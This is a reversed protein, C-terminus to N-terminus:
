RTPARPRLVPNPDKQYSSCVFYSNPSDICSKPFNSVGIQGCEAIARTFAGNGSTLCQATPNDGCSDVYNFLLTACRAGKGGAYNANVLDDECQKRQAACPQLGSPDGFQIPDNAAYSYPNTKQSFPSAMEGIMGPLLWITKITRCMGVTLPTFPALIPDESVFRQSSSSYYRARYYYFGTGDNERGTYQLANASAGTVTTKGFPEYGYTAVSGGTADSLVLSSGLADTHYYQNGTGAQRIFTEDINLSRLYNAGVAGGGIEATIDTGDYAFQSVVSNITKSTRRGLPDYKFEATVNGNIGVLRNRADWNYQRLVTGAGDKEKWLNGNADYELAQGAFAIQENAPDYSASAVAAPLLSATGNNRTLSTRNGAPDYAYTLAEIIGSPGIHNITTRRSAVDYGYSTSTGNPYTLSTRRNANDYGLGVALSGQAVQTLRSAADYTYGVPQQGNAVMQTRRGLVDYQYNVSGQGTVEQILRDLTDYAFDITGAGTATDSAKTLRSVSDYIFTTTADPYTATTRRNLADYVFTTQQNKRDTFQLLNGALDYQYSEQRNLPDKRTALRDMSNYTYSTAQGKADQVSLLNGNPDYTFRTTGQRADAIKWTPSVPRWRRERMARVKLTGFQTRRLGDSAAAKSFVRNSWGLPFQVRSTNRLSAATCFQQSSSFFFPDVM